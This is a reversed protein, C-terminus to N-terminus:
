GLKWRRRAKFYALLLLIGAVLNFAPTFLLTMKGFQGLSPDAFRYYLDAPVDDLRMVAVILVWEPLRRYFFFAIVEALCFGLWIIATRGLLYTPGPGPDTQLVRQYFDPFGLAVIGLGLDFLALPGTLLRTRELPHSNAPM